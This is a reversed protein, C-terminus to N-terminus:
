EMEDPQWVILRKGTRQEKIAIPHIPEYQVWTKNINVDVYPYNISSGNITLTNNSTTIYTNPISTGTTVTIDGTLATISNAM